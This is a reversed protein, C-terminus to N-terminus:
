LPNVNVHIVRPCCSLISHRSRSEQETGQGQGSFQSTQHSQTRDSDAQRSRRSSEAHPVVGTGTQCGIPPWLLKTRHAPNRNGRLRGVRAGFEALRPRNQGISRRRSFLFPDNWKGIVHIDYIISFLGSQLLFYAFKKDYWVWIPSPPTPPSVNTIMLGNILAPWTQAVSLM